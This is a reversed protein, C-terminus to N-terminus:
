YQEFLFLEDIYVQQAAYRHFLIVKSRIERSSHAFNQAEENLLNFYLHPRMEGLELSFVVM